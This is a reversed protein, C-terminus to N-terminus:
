RALTARGVGIELGVVLGVLLLEAGSCAVMSYTTSSRAVM